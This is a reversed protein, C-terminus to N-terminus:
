FLYYNYRYGTSVLIQIINFSNKECARILPLFNYEVDPSQNAKSDDYNTITAINDIPIDNINRFKSEGGKLSLMVRLANANECEVLHCLIVQEIQEQSVVLISDKRIWDLIQLYLSLFKENMDIKPNADFCVRICLHVYESSGTQFMNLLPFRQQLMAYTVEPNDIQILLNTQLDSFKQWEQPLAKRRHLNSLTRRMLGKWREKSEMKRQNSDM